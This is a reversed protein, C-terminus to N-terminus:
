KNGIRPRYDSGRSEIKDLRPYVMGYNNSNGYAAFKTEKASKRELLHKPLPQTKNQLDRQIQYPRM